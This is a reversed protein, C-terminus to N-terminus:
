LEGIVDFDGMFVGVSMLVSVKSTGHKKTFANEFETASGCYPSITGATGPHRPLFSTIDYVKGKYSVWCDSVSNHQSLETLSIKGNSVTGGSDGLNQSGTDSPQESGQDQNVQASIDEESDENISDDDYSYNNLRIFFVIGIVLAFILVALLLKKNM